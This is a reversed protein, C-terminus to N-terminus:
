DPTTRATGTARKFWQQSATGFPETGSSMWAVMERAVCRARLVVEPPYGFTVRNTEFEEEDLLRVDGAGLREVDLDLDIFSIRRASQVAPTAIDVYWQELGGWEPHPPVFYASWWAGAPFLSLGPRALYGEGATTVPTGDPMWLWRGYRDEGLELAESDRHAGGNWKTSVVRVQSM